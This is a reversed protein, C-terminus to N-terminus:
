LYKDPVNYGLDKLIFAYSKDALRKESEMTLREFRQLKKGSKILIIEVIGGVLLMIGGITLVTPMLWQIESPVGLEYSNYLIIGRYLMFAGFLTLFFYSGASYTYKPIGHIAIEMCRPDLYRTYCKPCQKVPSKYRIFGSPNYSLLRKGCNKCVIKM